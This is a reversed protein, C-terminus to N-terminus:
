DKKWSYSKLYKKYVNHSQKSIIWFHKSPLLGTTAHDEHHVMITPEYFISLNAMQLQYTLFFEEGMLFTPAFLLNYYEFFIPGLIYCAGYGQFIVQPINSNLYDKRIFKSKSARVILLIIKSFFYNYYYLDYIYSRFNSIKRTVHPNQPIENKTIINPSVVAYKLFLDNNKEIQSLFDKGFILDNNGIIVHKINSFNLHLFKLGLNLGKFYGLNVPSYIVKLNQNSLELGELIIKNEDNSNNDVVIIINNINRPDLNISNILSVTHHSNNYNTVIFAIKM